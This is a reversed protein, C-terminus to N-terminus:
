DLEASVGTNRMVWSKLETLFDDLKPEAASLCLSSVSHVLM